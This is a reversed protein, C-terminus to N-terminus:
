SPVPAWATELAAVYPVRLRLPPLVFVAPPASVTTPAKVMPALVVKAAEVNECVSFPENVSLPAKVPPVLVTVKPPELGCVIPPAAGAGSVWGVREGAAERLAGWVGRVGGGGGGGG